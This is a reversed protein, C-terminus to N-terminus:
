IEDVTATMTSFNLLRSYQYSEIVPYFLTLLNYSKFKKELIQWTSSLCWMSTSNPSSPSYQLCYQIVSTSLITQVELKLCCFCQQTWGFTEEGWCRRQHAPGDQRVTSQQLGPEALCTLLLKVCHDRDSFKEKDSLLYTPGYICALSLKANWGLNELPIVSNKRGAESLVSFSCITGKGTDFSMHCKLFRTTPFSQSFPSPKWIECLKQSRMWLDRAGTPRCTFSKSRSMRCLFILGM